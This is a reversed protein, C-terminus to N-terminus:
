RVQAMRLIVLELIRQQDPINSKLETDAACCLELARAARETTTRGAAEMLLRAPYSSRFGCLEAIYKEGRGARKALTAAYIRQTQRTLAALVAVPENKMEMLDRLIALARRHEGKMVCDTLDFVDAELVRSAVADIDERTVTEGKAYASIKDVETILNTMLSGCLFIIYDCDSPAIKKGAAAFRRQLWRVLESGQAKSFEVVLGNKEISKYLNLRRDPKYESGLYLLILCLYEPLNAFAEPLSDRLKQPWATFDPDRIIVLKKESGFPLSEVADNFVDEDIRSGDLRTVNFEAFGGAAIQKEIEAVYYEKLYSEEGCFVYLSGLAHDKLEARLRRVASDDKKKEYAM